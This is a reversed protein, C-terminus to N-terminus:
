RVDENVNKSQSYFHHADTDLYTGWTGDGYAPTTFSYKGASNTYGKQVWYWQTDGKPRYVLVVHAHNYHIWGKSSMAITVGTFTIKSNAGAPRTTSAAISMQTDIRNLRHAPQAYGLLQPSEFHIVRYYGDTYGYAQMFFSTYTSTTYGTTIHSLNKWNSKGNPSYQLWLSQNSSNGTLRGTTKVLGYEDISFAPLTVSTATPVNVTNQKENIYPLYPSPALYTHLTTTMNATIQYSFSGDAATTAGTLRHPVTYAYNDPDVSTTVVPAGAFPLDYTGNASDYRSVKGKVTISQGKHVTAPTSTVAISYSDSSVDVDPVTGATRTPITDSTGVVQASGNILTGGPTVPFTFGGGGDTDVTATRSVRSAPSVDDWWVLRVTVGAGAPTNKGTAPDLVNVKGGITVTRHTFDTSTRDTTVDEVSAHKRYNLSGLHATHEQTGDSLKWNVDIPYDGYATGSPLELADTTHTGTFGSADVTALVPADDATSARVSLEVSGDQVEGTTYFSVTGDDNTVVQYVSGPNSDAFAAPAVAVALSASMIIATAGIVARRRTRTM